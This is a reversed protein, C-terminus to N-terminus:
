CHDADIFMNHQGVVGIFLKGPIEDMVTMQLGPLSFKAEDGM